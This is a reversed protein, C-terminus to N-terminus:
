LEIGLQKFVRPLDWKGTFPVGLFYGDGADFNVHYFSRPTKRMLDGKFDGGSFEGPLTIARAGYRQALYSLVMDEQEALVWPKFEDFRISNLEDTPIACMKKAIHGKIYISCGSFNKLKGLKCDALPPAQMVGTIDYGELANVWNFVDSNFFLMDSDISLVWDDDQVGKSLLRRMADLKMMSSEWGAGNGFGAADMDETISHGLNKCYKALSNRMLQCLERDRHGCFNFAHILPM